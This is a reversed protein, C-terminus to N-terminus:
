RKSSALLNSVAEGLRRRRADDASQNVVVSLLRLLADIAM